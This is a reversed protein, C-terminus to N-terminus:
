EQPDRSRLALPPQKYLFQERPWNAAAFCQEYVSDLFARLTAAPDGANRVADYPLVWEHLTSSWSAEPPSVQLSAANNPEPYIYGYFFPPTQEDGYYLGVNMLEADLDYKMIYGRDNPPTVHRGSFLLLALDFAGWWFQLGERGFFQTRWADFVGAVATSAEFWRLVAAGEYESPRRDEDLPTTDPLEQPIPTIYVSIKLKALAASLSEYVEAVTRVPVLSISERSGDSKSLCIKSNFVDIAVEFSGARWPITGTTVGRPTLYLATFMWNPQIPAAALKIKGLMQTYLHLSRKTQPWQSVTIEPWSTTKV